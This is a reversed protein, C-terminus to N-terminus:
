ITSIQIKQSFNVLFPVGNVFIVYATLTVFKQVGYFYWSVYIEEAEVRAPNQIVTKGRVGSLNPGFITHTNTIDTCTVHISKLATCNKSVLEKFYKGPQSEIM